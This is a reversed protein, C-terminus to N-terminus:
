EGPRSRFIRSSSRELGYSRTKTWQEDTACYTASTLPIGFISSKPSISECFHSEYPSKLGKGSDM